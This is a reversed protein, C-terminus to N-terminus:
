AHLEDVIVADFGGPAIETAHAVAEKFVDSGLVEKVADMSDFTASFTHTYPSEGALAKAVKTFSIDRAGAFRQAIPIHETLYRKEFTDPDPQERYLVNLRVAM